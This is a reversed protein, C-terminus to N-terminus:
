PVSTIQQQSAMLPQIRLQILYYLLVSLGRTAYDEHSLGYTMGLSMLVAAVGSTAMVPLVLQTVRVNESLLLGIFNVAVRISVNLYFSMVGTIFTAELFAAVCHAFLLLGVVAASLSKHEYNHITTAMTREICIALNTAETLFVVYAMAPMLWYQYDCGTLRSAPLPCEIRVLLNLCMALEVLVMFLQALIQSCVLIRCNRHIARFKLFFLAFIVVLILSMIALLLGAILVIHVSANRQMAVM